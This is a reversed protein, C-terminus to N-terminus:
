PWIVEMLDPDVGAWELLRRSYRVLETRSAHTEVFLGNTLEVASRFKSGDLHRPETNILCRDAGRSTSRTVSVPASEPRLLGQRVLWNAVHVVIEKAYQCEHREGAILVARGDEAGEIIHEVSPPFAETATPYDVRVDARSLSSRIESPNLDPAAKRILRVLSDNDPVLITDLAAQVQRDVYFAQWLESLDNSALKSKALLLLTDVAHDLGAPDSVKIKRFLKDNVDVPAHANYIRYEDGNTLVCWEVGVVTAYGMIQSVWRRDSLDSGFDKAEIFLTPTRRLLLAYDVPNDQSKARYERIVEDLDRLDWGLAEILPEVLIAKTNQEGVTERRERIQEIRRQVSQVADMVQSRLDSVNRRGKPRM